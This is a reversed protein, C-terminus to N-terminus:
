QVKLVTGVAIENSSIGNIEKLVDVDMGHNLAIRYLNDGPQVTYSNSYEETSSEPTEEVIEVPPEVSEVPEEMVEEPEIIEASSEPETEVVPTSPENNENRESSAPEVEKESSKASSDAESSVLKSSESESESSKKSIMVQDATQPNPNARTQTSWYYTVFPIILLALFLFLLVKYLPAVEKDQSKRGSRFQNNSNKKGDEDFRRSWPKDNNKKKSVLFEGRIIMSSITAYKHNSFLSAISYFTKKHSSGM